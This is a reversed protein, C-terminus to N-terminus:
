GHPREKWSQGSVIRGATRTNVGFMKALRPAGFIRPRYLRRMELVEDWTLKARGHDEGYSPTPHRLGNRYAHFNNESHTVYELNGDSNNRKMGDKHNVEKGIPCPGIFARAVLVHILRPFPKGGKWLIVVEYGGNIIQPTKIRGIVAGGGRGNGTKAAPGVRRVQGSNSVEYIGEFGSIMAWESM